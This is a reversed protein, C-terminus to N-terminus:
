VFALAAHALTDSCRDLELVADDSTPGAGIIKANCCAIAAFRTLVGSSRPLDARSIIIAHRTRDEQSAIMDGCNPCVIM